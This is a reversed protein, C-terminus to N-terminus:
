GNSKRNLREVRGFLASVTMSRCHAGKQAQNPNGCPAIIQKYTQVCPRKGENCYQILINRGRMLDRCIAEPFVSVDEFKKKKKQSVVLVRKVRIRM